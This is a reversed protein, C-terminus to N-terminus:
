ARRRVGDRCGDLKRIEVVPGTRDYKTSWYLHTQDFDFPEPDGPDDYPDARFMVKSERELRDYYAVAKDLGATEARERFWSMTVVVCYGDARYRTIRQPKLEALFREARVPQQTNPDDDRPPAGFGYVFRPEGPRPEIGLLPVDYPHRIAVADVVMRTGSPLEDLMFNRALERTDAKSMVTGTKINMVIPQAMVVLVLGAVAGAQIAPKGSVSRAIRAIAVGAFLALVPYAPLLWRAFYREADLGLYLVLVVPFLALLVARTRNRRVETVLGVIAAVLAGWGLGWTLTKAYFWYPNEQVQGPKETSAADSQARLEDLAEGLDLLFYPNTIAFVALAVAGALASLGVVRLVSPWERRAHLVVAVLLPGLILGATYKFAVTLGLGLGAIVYDRTAGRESIRVIGYLTVAAGLLVGVDTVAYRSYAVPLFAFALVAAAVLGEFTGWLRRGVAYVAAVGLLAVAAAVLRATEYIDSPDTVYENAVGLFDDYGRLRLAAYVLYTLTAPNQFYGSNYEGDFMEVTYRTFHQSEDSHYIFPLGHHLGYLRVALGGALIAALALRGTTLHKRV